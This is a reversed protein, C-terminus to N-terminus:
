AHLSLVLAANSAIVGAMLLSCAWAAIVAVRRPLIAAALLVLIVAPVKALLLGWAGYSHIVGATLPNVEHLGRILGAITTLGDLLQACIFYTIPLRLASDQLALAVSFPQRRLTVASQAV